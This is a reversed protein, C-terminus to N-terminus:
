KNHYKNYQEVAWEQDLEWYPCHIIGPIRTGRVMIAQNNSCWWSIHSKLYKCDMCGCRQNPTENYNDEQKLYWDIKEVTTIKGTISLIEQYNPFLEKIKQFFGM